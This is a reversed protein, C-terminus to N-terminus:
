VAGYPGSKRLGTQSFAYSTGGRFSDLCGPGDCYDRPDAPSARAPEALAVSTLALTAAAMAAIERMRM